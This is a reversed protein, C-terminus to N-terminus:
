WSKTDLKFGSVVLVGNEYNERKQETGDENFTIRLGHQKGQVYKTKVKPKGSKYFTNLDGDFSWIRCDSFSSYLIATKSVEGSKYFDTLKCIFGNPILMLNADGPVTNYTAVQLVVPGLYEIVRQNKQSVTFTAGEGGQSFASSVCFILIMAM